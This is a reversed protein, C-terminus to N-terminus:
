QVMMHPNQNRESIVWDFSYMRILRYILEMDSTDSPDQGSRDFTFEAITAIRMKEHGCRFMSRLSPYAGYLRVSGDRDFTHPVWLGYTSGDVFFVAYLRNFLVPRVGVVGPVERLRSFLVRLARLNKVLRASALSNRIENFAKKLTFICSACASIFVFYSLLFLM